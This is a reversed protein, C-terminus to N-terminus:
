FVPLDDLIREGCAGCKGTAIVLRASKPGFRRSCKPCYAGLQRQRRIQLWIFLFMGIFFYAFFCAVFLHDLGDPGKKEPWFIFCALGAVYVVALKFVFSKLAAQTSIFDSKTMFTINELM